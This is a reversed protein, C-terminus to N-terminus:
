KNIQENSSAFSFIRICNKICNQKPQNWPVMHETICCITLSHKTHLIRLTLIHLSPSCIEIENENKKSDTAILRLKRQFSLFSLSPWFTMANWRRWQRAYKKKKEKQKQFRRYISRLFLETSWLTYSVVVLYMLRPSRHFKINGTCIKGNEKHCKRSKIIEEKILVFISLIFAFM